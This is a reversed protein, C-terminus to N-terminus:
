LNIIINKNRLNEICEHMYEQNHEDFIIDNDLYKKFYIWRFDYEKCQKGRYSGSWWEPAVKYCRNEMEQMILYHYAFLKEMPYEFVYNVTKHNKNWGNGRLACCERHQGLLQQRPLKSILQQSWLRM